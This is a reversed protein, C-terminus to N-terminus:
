LLNMEFAGEENLKDGTGPRKSACLTGERIGGWLYVSGKAKKTVEAEKEEVSWRMGVCSYDDTQKSRHSGTFPAVSFTRCSLCDEMVVKLWKVDQRWKKERCFCVCM